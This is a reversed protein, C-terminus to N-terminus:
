RLYQFANFLLWGLLAALYMTSNDFTDGHQHISYLLYALAGVVALTLSIQRALLQRRTTVLLLNYVVQGGDLPYIPLSNFLGLLWNVSYTIVLFNFLLSKGGDDAWLWSNHNEAVWHLGFYGIGALAFSVLPGAAIILIERRPLNDKISSCLGGFAWLTITVGYAGLARATLGHGLEHLVISIILVTLVVLFREPDFNAGNMSWTYAMYVMMLATWHVYLPIPGLHGLYVSDRM